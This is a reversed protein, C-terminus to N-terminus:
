LATLGKACLSETPMERRVREIFQPLKDMSMKFQNEKETPVGGYRICLDQIKKSPSEIQVVPWPKTSSWYALDRATGIITASRTKILPTYSNGATRIASIGELSILSIGGLM